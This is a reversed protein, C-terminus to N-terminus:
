RATINQYLQDEKQIFTVVKWIDDDSLLSGWAPMATNRIGHKVLWFMQSDTYSPRSLLLRPAPPYFSRGYLNESDSSAGHCRSCMQRYLQAGAILHEESPSVPNNENPAHRVVSAHLASGLLTAEIRSPTVDAQVPLVGLRASLIVVLAAIGYASIGGLAFFKVIKRNM